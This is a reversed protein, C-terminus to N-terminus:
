VNKVKRPVRNQNSYSRFSILFYKGKTKTSKYSNLEDNLYVSDLNTVKCLKLKNSKELTKFIAKTSLIFSDDNLQNFPDDKDESSTQNKKTIESKVNSFAENLKRKGKM